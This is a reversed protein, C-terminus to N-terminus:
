SAFHIPLVKVSVPSAQNVCSCPMEYVLLEMRGSLGMRLVSDPIKM